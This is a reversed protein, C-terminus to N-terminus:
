LARERRRLMTVLPVALCTAVLFLMLSMATAQAYLGEGFVRFIYIDLVQTSDAPGGGTTAQVIDFTNLSGILAAAVNFTLAPALLPWRVRRFCQWRGAGDVTAADVLETPVSKLGALYILMALGMWKWGHVAAVVIITWTTSGLWPIHVTGGTIAGIMANLAGDPALLAQFIYGVALASILVPLFFLARLVRNLWTDHELLLALGLGFANQFFGALAAYELTVRLSSTLTGAQMLERFNALGVLNIQSHYGSWNTFPYVFNLVNPLLFFVTFMVVAPVVFVWPPLSNRRRRRVRTAATAAAPKNPSRNAPIGTVETGAIASTGM